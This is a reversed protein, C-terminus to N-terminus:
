NVVENFIGYYSVTDGGGGFAVLRYGIENVIYTDNEDVIFDLSDLLEALIDGKNDKEPYSPLLETGVFGRRTTDVVLVTNSTIPSSDKLAKLTKVTANNGDTYLLTSVPFHEWIRVNDTETLQSLIELLENPTGKSNNILLRIKIRKRYDDDNDGERREGVLKGLYDLYIGVADEINFNDVLTFLDQQVEHLGKLYQELIKTINTKDSFQYLLLNLGIESLDENVPIM